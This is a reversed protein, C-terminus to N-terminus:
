LRSQYPVWVGDRLIEAGGFGVKYATRPSDQLWDGLYVHHRKTRRALEILWLVNYTGLSEKMLDPDFWSQHAYVSDAVFEFLSVMVLKGADNIFEAMLSGHFELVFKAYASLDFSAMEGDPHRAQHYKRFLDFHEERVDAAFSNQHLETNRKLTKRLTRRKEPRDVAIRVPSCATCKVCSTKTIFSGQRSFGQSVLASFTTSMSSQTAPAVLVRRMLGDIRDCPFERTPILILSLKGLYRILSNWKLKGQSTAMDM